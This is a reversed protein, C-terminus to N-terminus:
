IEDIDNIYFDSFNKIYKNIINQTILYIDKKKYKKISLIENIINNTYTDIDYTLDINYYYRDGDYGNNNIFIKKYHKRIYKNIKDINKINEINKYIYTNYRMLSYKVNTALREKYSM